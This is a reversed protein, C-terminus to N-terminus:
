KATKHSPPLLQRPAQTNKTHNRAHMHVQTSFTHLSSCLQLGEESLVEAQHFLDTTTKLLGEGRTFLYMSYAMSSLSQGQRVIDHEQDEWKEVETDVDSTLLRLELGLKAITSQEEVDLKVAKVTKLNASHKQRSFLNSLILSILPPFSTFDNSYFSILFIWWDYCQINQYEGRTQSAVRLSE